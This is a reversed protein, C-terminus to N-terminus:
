VTPKGGSSARRLNPVSSADRIEYYMMNTLAEPLNYSEMAEVTIPIPVDNDTIDWTIVVKAIWHLTLRRGTFAAVMKDLEPGIAALDFTVNITYGEFVFSHSHPIPDSGGPKTPFSM